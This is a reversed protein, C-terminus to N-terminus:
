RKQYAGVDNHSRLLLRHRRFHQLVHYILAADSYQLSSGGSPTHDQPVAPAGAVRELFNQDSSLRKGYVQSRQHM